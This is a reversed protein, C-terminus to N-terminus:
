ILGLVECMSSFLTFPKLSTACSKNEAQQTDPCPLVKPVPPPLVKQCVLFLVRHIGLPPICPPFHPTWHQYAGMECLVSIDAQM